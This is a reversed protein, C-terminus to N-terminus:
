RGIKNIHAETAASIDRTNRLPLDGEAPSPMTTRETGVFPLKLGKTLKSDNQSVSHAKVNMSVVAMPAHELASAPSTKFTKKAVHAVGLGAFYVAAFPACIAISALALTGAAVFPAVFGGAVAGIAGAGLTAVTTAIGGGALATEALLAGHLGGFVVGGGLAIRSIVNLPEIKFLMSWNKSIGTAVKSVFSM